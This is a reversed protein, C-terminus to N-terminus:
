SMTLVASASDCLLMQLIQSMNTRLSVSCHENANNEVSVPWSNSIHSLEHLTVQTPKVTNMQTPETNHSAFDSCKTDVHLLKLTRTRGSKVPSPTASSSVACLLSGLNGGSTSSNIAQQLM